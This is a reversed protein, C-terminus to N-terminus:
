KMKIGFRILIINQFYKLHNDNLVRIVSKANITFKLGSDIYNCDWSVTSPAVRLDFHPLLSRLENKVESQTSCIKNIFLEFQFSKKSLKFKNFM